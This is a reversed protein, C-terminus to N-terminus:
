SPYGIIYWKWELEQDSDFSEILTKQEESLQLDPLAICDEADVFASTEWLYIITHYMTSNVDFKASNEARDTLRKYNDDSVVAGYQISAM